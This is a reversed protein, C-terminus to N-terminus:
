ELSAPRGPLRASRQGRGRASWRDHQPQVQPTCPTPHLTCPAHDLYPYTSLLHLICPAPHLTRNPCALRCKTAIYLDKRPKGEAARKALWNGIWVETLKGYNFAVPYLEATDIFNAGAAVATDLQAHAQTNFRCRLSQCESM